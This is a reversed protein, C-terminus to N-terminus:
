FGAFATLMQNALVVEPTVTFDNQTKPKHKAECRNEGVVVSCSGESEGEPFQWAVSSSWKSMTM